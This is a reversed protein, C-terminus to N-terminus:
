NSANKNKEVEKAGKKEAGREGEKGSQTLRDICHM